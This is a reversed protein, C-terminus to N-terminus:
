STIKFEELTRYLEIKNNIGLKNYINTLHREVTRDSIGLKVSVEKYTSGAVTLVIIELERETIGFKKQFDSIERVENSIVIFGTQDGFRDKIAAIYSNTYIHASNIVYNVPMSFNSIKREHLENLMKKLHDTDKIIDLFNMEKVRNIKGLFFFDYKKNVDKIKFNQDLIFVLDNISSIIENAMLSNEINMFRFKAVLFFLGLVYLNFLAFGTFQLKYLNLLPLGLTLFLTTLNAFNFFVLISLSYIKEKRSTTSFRWKLLVAMSSVSYLLIFIIYFYLWPNRYNIIGVWENNYKVADHFLFFTLFHYISLIIAPLFNLVHFVPKIFSRSIVLYFHLNVPFFLFFGIYSIKSSLKFIEINDISYALGGFLNWIFMTLCLASFLINIRNRHNNLLTKVALYIWLSSLLVAIITYKSM